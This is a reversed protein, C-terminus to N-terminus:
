LEEEWQTPDYPESPGTPASRTTHLGARKNFEILEDAAAKMHEPLKDYLHLDGADDFYKARAAAIVLQAEDDSLGSFIEEMERSHLVASEKLVKSIEEKIIQRLQSKTIKM